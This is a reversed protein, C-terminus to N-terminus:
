ATGTPTPGSRCRPTNRRRRGTASNDTPTSAGAGCRGAPRPFRRCARRARTTTVPRCRTGSTAAVRSRAQAVSSRDDHRRRASRQLELGLLPPLCGARHRVHPVHRDHHRDLRRGYRDAGTHSPRDDHRRRSRGQLQRGLVLASQRHQHRVHPRGRRLHRELQEPSGGGRAHLSDNRHRRGRRRGLLLPRRADDQDRVSRPPEIRGDLRRRARHAASDPELERALGTGLQGLTNDGWCYLQGGARIGCTHLEAVSVSNWDAGRASAPRPHTAGDDHQRGARRRRQLGLVVASRRHTNRLHPWLGRQDGDLRERHRGRTPAPRSVLTGDGLQGNANLGWCWVQGGARLGCTYNEEARVSTWDTASGIRTPVNRDTTTGDGLQGDGNGGWCWLEGARVGCSHLKGATVTTWGTTLTVLIPASHTANTGDGLQGNSGNGWCWLGSRSAIACAHQGGASVSLGGIRASTIQVPLLEPRETAGDRGPRLRERGLVLAQEHQPHRLRLRQRGGDREVARRAADGRAGARRNTAGDGLQGHIDAGWSFYRCGGARRVDLLMVLASTRVVKRAGGM